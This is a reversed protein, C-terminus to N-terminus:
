QLRNRAHGAPGSDLMATLSALTIPKALHADCGARLALEVDAAQNYGTVAIIHGGYGAARLRRAVEYGDMEPLGIDLLIVSFDGAVDLAAAQGCTRRILDIM